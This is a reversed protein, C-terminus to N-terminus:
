ADGEGEDPMVYPYLMERLMSERLLAATLDAEAREARARMERAEEFIRAAESQSLNTCDAHADALRRVLCPWDELCAVCFPCSDRESRCREHEAIGAALDANSM